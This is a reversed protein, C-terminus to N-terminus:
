CLRNSEWRHGMTEPHSALIQKDFTQEKEDVRSNGVKGKFDLGSDSGRKEKASSPIYAEIAQNIRLDWIRISDRYACKYFSQNNEWM